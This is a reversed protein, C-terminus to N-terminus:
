GHGEAGGEEGWYDYFNFWNYPALRCYHELRVAYRETWHRAAEPRDREIREALLEFCLRYRNGGMYLGFFLVVPVGLLGALRFTGAPFAAPTGLFPCAITRTPDVVRDGLVGVVGGRALCEHVRLMTDVAGAPIVAAAAEPNLRAFAARMLPANDEHMVLKVELGEALGRARAVEFCGLHSGILLCGRQTRLYRDVVEIGEITIDLRHAQGALLYVRDLVTSAFAHYHRCVDSLGPPRDLARALYRGVARRAPGSLSVFYCVIPYLLARAAPRGFTLAIGIMSAVALRHGRERQRQWALSM